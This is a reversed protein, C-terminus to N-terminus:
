ATRKYLSIGVLVCAEMYPLRNKNLYEIIESSEAGPQIIMMDFRKQCERILRIGKNPNICLVVTDINEPVDNISALEKGVCYVTYGSKLLRHKIIYAYKNPNLMDGVVAFVRGQMAKQLDM